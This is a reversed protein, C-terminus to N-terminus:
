VKKCFTIKCLKQIILLSCRNRAFSNNPDEGPGVKDVCVIAVQIPRMLVRLFLDWCLWTPYAFLVNLTLMVCFTFKVLSGLLQSSLATVATKSDKGQHCTGVIILSLSIHEWITYYTNRIVGLIPVTKKWYLNKRQSASLIESSMVLKALNARM